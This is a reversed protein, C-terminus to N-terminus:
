LYDSLLSPHKWPHLIYAYQLLLLLLLLIKFKIGTFAQGNLESQPFYTVRVTELCEKEYGSYSRLTM